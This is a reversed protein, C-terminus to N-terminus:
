GLTLLYKHTDARGPQSRRCSRRAGPVVISSGRWPAPDFWFGPDSKSSVLVRCSTPECLRCPRTSLLRTHSEYEHMTPCFECWSLDVAGTQKLTQTTLAATQRNKPPRFRYDPVFVCGEKYPLGTGVFVFYAYKCETSHVTGRLSEGLERKSWRVCPDGLHVHHRRAEGSSAYSGCARVVDDDSAHRLCLITQTWGRNGRAFYEALGLM